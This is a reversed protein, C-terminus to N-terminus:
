PQSFVDPSVLSQVHEIPHIWCLNKVMNRFSVRKDRMNYIIIQNVRDINILYKVIVIHRDKETMCLPILFDYQMDNIGFDLLFINLLLTWSRQNRFEKMQWISLHKTKRNHIFLSLYGNLVGVLPAENSHLGEIFCIDGVVVGNLEHPLLLQTYTETELDLSVIVLEDFSIRPNLLDRGISKPAGLWNLTNNLYIGVMTWPPQAPFDQIERWGRKEDLSCILSRFPGVRSIVHGFIAVVRYSHRSNDYGYGLMILIEEKPHKLTSYPYMLEKKTTPNWLHFTNPGKNYRETLCVLGNCSGLIQYNCKLKNGRIM